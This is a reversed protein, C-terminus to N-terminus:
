QDNNLQRHTIAEYGKLIQKLQDPDILPFHKLITEILKDSDDAWTTLGIITIGVLENNDLAQRYVIGDIETGTAPRNDPTTLYFVDVLTDYTCRPLFPKNYPTIM